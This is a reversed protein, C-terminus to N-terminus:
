AWRRYANGNLIRRGNPIPVLGLAPLRQGILNSPLNLNLNLNPKPKDTLYVQKYRIDFSVRNWTPRPGRLWPPAYAGGENFIFLKLLLLIRTTSYPFPFM